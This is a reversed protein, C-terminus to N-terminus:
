DECKFRNMFDQLSESSLAIYKDGDQLIPLSYIRNLIIKKTEDNSLTEVNVIECPLKNDTIVKKFQRCKTCTQSTILKM